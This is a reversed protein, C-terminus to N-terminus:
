GALREAVKPAFYTLIGDAGARKFATLSEMMAREGDIWGNAAAAQIMAYEGSVQYAFTPAAFADKVRRVVDLYPLGPKVMIMDAGEELDLAAERLAEDTNAPDMQYTRKDGVLTANTGIADRFPGYFASAYKAAYAMIQVDHFGAADLAMRIAGVRGDMMDSPAIIDAGAQAQVVAQRALVDVTEDNLITHGDLLGDHGHSTYPDLAVDTVLGIEPVAAKIARVATCVLNAENLAESGEPDRLSPDTYPFLAIAPIGLKAAREAERVAEDVTLREVGPMSGVAHRRGEGAVIFLPWILDNATLVNERVMRRAWEAKRNRRPRHSLALALDDAAPRSLPSLKHM